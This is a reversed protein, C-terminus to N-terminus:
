RGSLEGKASKIFAELSAIDLGEIKARSPNALARM